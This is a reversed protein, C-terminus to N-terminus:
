AMSIYICGLNETPIKYEGMGLLTKPYPRTIALWTGLMRAMLYEVEINCRMWSYVGHGRHNLICIFLPIKWHHIDVSTWNLGMIGPKWTKYCFSKTCGYFTKYTVDYNIPTLRRVQLPMDNFIQYQLFYFSISDFRLFNGIYFNVPQRKNRLSANEYQM